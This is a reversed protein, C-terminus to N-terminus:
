VCIMAGKFLMTDKYASLYGDDNPEDGLLLVCHYVLIEELM